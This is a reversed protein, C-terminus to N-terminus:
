GILICSNSIRCHTLLIIKCLAMFPIIDELVDPFLGPHSVKFNLSFYGPSHNQHCAVYFSGVNRKEHLHLLILSKWFIIRFSKECQMKQLMISSHVNALAKSSLSGTVNPAGVSVSSPSYLLKHLKVPDWSTLSQFPGSSNM